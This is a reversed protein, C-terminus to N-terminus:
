ELDTRYIKVPYYEKLQDAWLEVSKKLKDDHVKKAIEQWVDEFPQLKAPVIQYIYLVYFQGPPSEYLRFDGAKAGSVAKQVKQPLSSLTILQGDFNLIGPANPDVQGEANSGLWNFDTGKKLKDIAAVADSRKGFVLSKIRLLQPSTYQEANQAYYTKLDKLDTKIDPDVVKQIFANFILSIEQEKVRLRYEDTKDIGQKLAEKLLLRKQLMDELIDIKQSNIKKNKAALKV